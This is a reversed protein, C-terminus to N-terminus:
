SNHLRGINKLDDDLFSQVGFSLRNVGAKKLMSLLEFTTSEPNLEVTLEYDPEFNFKEIIKSFDDVSLLSPTGGGFYLTKQPTKDYFFDIESLLAKIYDDKLYLNEFSCFSCYKCKKKCFPIHIYTSKIM